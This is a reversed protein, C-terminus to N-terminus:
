PVSESHLLNSAMHLKFHGNKTCARSHELDGLKQSKWHVIRLCAIDFNDAVDVQNFQEGFKM